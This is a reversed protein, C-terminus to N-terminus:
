QLRGRVEAEAVIASVWNQVVTLPRLSAERGRVKAIFRKGDPSIDFGYITNEAVILDREKGVEITNKSSTVPVAEVRDRRCYFIETGDRSWKPFYGEIKSIQRAARTMGDERFSAVYVQPRGSEASDYALWRGDPSINVHSEEVPTQLLSYPPKSQSLPLAWISRYPAKDSLRDFLL